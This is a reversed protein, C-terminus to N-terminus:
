WFHETSYQISNNHVTMHFYILAQKSPHLKRRHTHQEHKNVSNLKHLLQPIHKNHNICNWNHTGTYNIVHLSEDLGLGFPKNVIAVSFHVQQIYLTVNFSM